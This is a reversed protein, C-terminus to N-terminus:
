MLIKSRVPLRTMILKTGDLAMGKLSFHIDDVKWSAYSIAVNDFTTAPTACAVSSVTALLAALTLKKM